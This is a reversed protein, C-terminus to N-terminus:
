MDETDENDIAYKVKGLLKRGEDALELEIREQTALLHLRILLGVPNLQKCGHFMNIRRNLVSLKQKVVGLANMGHKLYKPTYSSRWCKNCEGCLTLCNPESFWGGLKTPTMQVVQFESSVRDGCIQCVGADRLLVCGIVAWRPKNLSRAKIIEKATEKDWVFSGYGVFGRMEALEVIKQDKQRLRSLNPRVAKTKKPMEGVPLWEIVDDQEHNEHDAYLSTQNQDTRETSTKNERNSGGTPQEIGPYIGIRTNTDTDLKVKTREMSRQPGQNTERQRTENRSGEDRSNEYGETSRGIGKDTQGTENTREQSVAEVQEHGDSDEKNDKYSGFEEVVEDLLEDFETTM